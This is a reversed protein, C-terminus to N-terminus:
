VLGAVPGLSRALLTQAAEIGGQDIGHALGPRALAELPVGASALAARAQRFSSWPVIEDDEGHVLLVPPYGAPGPPPVEDLMAGSFALIASPPVRRRLGAHLAMMAGQSFGFLALADAPLGLSALQADLYSNLIPAAMAIGSMLAAPARDAFSFWQRGLPPMECPFPASPAVFLARPVATALVPALPILDHGDTGLGHLLVVLAGPKGGAAPGFSPGTLVPLSASM